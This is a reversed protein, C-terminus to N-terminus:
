CAEKAERVRPEVAAYPANKKGRTGRADLDAGPADWTKRRPARVVNWTMGNHHIIGLDGRGLKVVNYIRKPEKIGKVTQAKIFAM